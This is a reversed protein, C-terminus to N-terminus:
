ATILYAETEVFRHIIWTGYLATKEPIWSSIGDFFNGVTRM